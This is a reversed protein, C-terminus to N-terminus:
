LEAETDHNPNARPHEAPKEYNSFDRYVARAFEEAFRKYGAYCRESAFFSLVAAAILQTRHESLKGNSLGLYYGAAFVAVLLSVIMLVKFFRLVRKFFEDKDKSDKLHDASVIRSRVVWKLFEDKSDKLRDATVLAFSAIVIGALVALGSLQRSGFNAPVIKHLLGSYAWGLYYVVAIGFAASLGRMLAYLGEFQEPYIVTKSKILASRCLFFADNRVKDAAGAEAGLAVDLEFVTKIQHALRRKFEPSFNRDQKDLFKWSPFRGGLFNSPIAQQAVTQLVHGAFYAIIVGVLASSFEADPWRNDILGFPLWLVALLLFGPLAFGYIDYFNFKITM